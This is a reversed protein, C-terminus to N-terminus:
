TPMGDPYVVKVKKWIEHNAPLVQVDPWHCRAADFLPVSAVHTLTFATLDFAFIAPRGTRKVLPKRVRALIDKLMKRDDDTFAMDDEKGLDAILVSVDVIGQSFVQCDTYPRQAENHEWLTFSSHHLGHSGPYWVEYWDLEQALWKLLMVLVKYQPATLKRNHTTELEIGVLWLNGPWSCHWCTADLPYHQFLFGERTITFHWSAERDSFLVNYLVKDDEPLDYEAEHLCAGTKRHTPTRSYVKAPPGPLWFAFPCIGTTM